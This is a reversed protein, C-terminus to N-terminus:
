AIRRIRVRAGCIRALFNSMKKVKAGRSGIWRGMSDPTLLIVLTNGHWRAGDPVHEDSVWAWWALETAVLQADLRKGKALQEVVYATTFRLIQPSYQFAFEEVASQCKECLAATEYGAFEFGFTHVTTGCRECQYTLMDSGTLVIM